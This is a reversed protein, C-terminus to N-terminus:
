PDKVMTRQSVLRMLGHYRRGDLLGQPREYVSVGFNVEDLDVVLVDVEVVGSHRGDECVPVLAIEKGVQRSQYLQEGIVLIKVGVREFPQKDLVPYQLLLPRHNDKGTSAKKAIKM